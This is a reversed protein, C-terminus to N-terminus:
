SEDATFDEKETSSESLLLSSSPAPTSLSLRVSCLCARDLSPRVSCGHLLRTVKEARGTAEAFRTHSEQLYLVRAGTKIKFFEDLLSSLSHASKRVFLLSLSM